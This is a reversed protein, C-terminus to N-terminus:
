ALLLWFGAGAAGHLRGPPSLGQGFLGWPRSSTALLAADTKAIHGRRGAGALLRAHRLRAPAGARGGPRPGLPIDGARPLAGALSPLRYPWIM